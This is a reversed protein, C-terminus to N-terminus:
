RTSLETVVILFGVDVVILFEQAFVALSMEAIRAISIGADQPMDLWNKSHHGDMTLLRDLIPKCSFFDGGNELEHIKQRTTRHLV